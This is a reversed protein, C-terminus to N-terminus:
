LWMCVSMSGGQKQLQDEDFIKDFYAHHSKIPLYILVTGLYWIFMQRDCPYFLTKIDGLFKSDHKKFTVHPFMVSLFIRINVEFM